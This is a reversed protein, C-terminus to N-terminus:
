NSLLEKREEYMSKLELVKEKVIPVFESSKGGELLLSYMKGGIEIEESYEEQIKIKVKTTLESFKKDREKVWVRQAIRLSVQDKENLIQMLQKYYFNLERDWLKYGILCGVGQSDTLRRDLCEQIYKSYSAEFEEMNKFNRLPSFDDISLYKFEKLKIEETNVEESLASAANLLLSLIAIGVLPKM